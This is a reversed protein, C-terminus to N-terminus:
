KNQQIINERSIDLLTRMQEIKEMMEDNLVPMGLREGIDKLALFRSQLLEPTLPFVAPNLWINALLMMVEALEKPYDTQISGDKIGELIIPEVVQPAIVEVSERLQSALFRPNEFLNPAVSLVKEQTPNNLSIFVLSQIKQLGTLTDNGKIKNIGGYLGSYLRDLVAEIIEEKSKFHHYIAGKSLDGLQDLINQITTNDYGKELFLKTAADLIRNVTIEPYKNRSM